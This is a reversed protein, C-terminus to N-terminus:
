SSQPWANVLALGAKLSLVLRGSGPKTIYVHKSLGKVSM